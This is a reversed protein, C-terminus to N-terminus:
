LKVITSKGSYSVDKAQGAPDIVKIRFRRDNLMGPYEGKRDSITLIHKSDDWSFTITSYMGKEYNYNDFEDEYLSFKGDAGPYIRIELDDWPKETAYQVDPGLPIISGSRVYLPITNIDSKKQISKGGRHREGTWFDIW